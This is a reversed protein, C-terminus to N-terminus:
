APELDRRLTPMQQTPLRDWCYRDRRAECIVFERPTDEVPSLRQEIAEGLEHLDIM